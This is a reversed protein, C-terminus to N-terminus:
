AADRQRVRQRALDGMIQEKDEANHECGEAEDADPKGEVLRWRGSRRNKSRVRSRAGNAM